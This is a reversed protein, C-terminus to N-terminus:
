EASIRRDVNVRAITTDRRKKARALFKEIAAGDGQDILDRLKATDSSFKDLASLVAARNTLLIDRWMEPDGSALRTVDRFGSASVDLDNNGPLLMMLGALVHPLHSIRAVAKDHAAPSRRVVRMGLTKWFAEIADIADSPTDATPTVICSAGVFLDARSFRVGKQESGAMPHSGVFPGGPGLIRRAIREVRAKTSGVDTVLTNPDLAPAAKKLHMEFAGVPTALIVLDSQGVCEAPDFHATDIAGVELAADLSVQRRGVGAVRVSPDHAKMALAASGGLLGVGVITVHQIKRISM